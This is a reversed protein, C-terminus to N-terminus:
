FVLSADEGQVSGCYREHLQTVDVAPKNSKTKPELRVLQSVTLKLNLLGLGCSYFCCTQMDLMTLFQHLLVKTMLEYCVSLHFM